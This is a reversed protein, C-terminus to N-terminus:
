DFSVKNIHYIYYVAFVLSRHYRKIMSCIGLHGVVNEEEYELRNCMYRHIIRSKQIINDKNKPAKLLSKVTNGGRFHVQMGVKNCINEISKSFGKTYPVVMHSTIATTTLMTPATKIAGQGPNPRHTATNSTTGLRSGMQPVQVQFPGM